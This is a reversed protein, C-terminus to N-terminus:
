GGNRCRPQRLMPYYKGEMKGKLEYVPCEFGHDYSLFARLFDLGMTLSSICIINQKQLRTAQM